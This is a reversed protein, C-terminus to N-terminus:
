LAEAVVAAGRNAGAAWPGPGAAILSKWVRGFVMASFPLHDPGPLATKISLGGNVKLLAKRDGNVAFL